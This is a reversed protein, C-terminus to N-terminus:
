DERRRLFMLTGGVLVVAAVTALTAALNVGTHSLHSPVTRNAGSASQHKQSSGEATPTETGPKDTAPKDTAPKDTAPKDTTPAPKDASRATLWQESSLAHDVIRTEGINGYFGTNLKGDYISGGILWAGANVPNLGHAGNTARLAPAGDVYMTVADIKPDDVVAIHHWQGVPIECSWNSHGLSVDEADAFAWQVEKLSSIAGALPPEEIDSDEGFNKIDSRKGERTVFAMWHNAESYNKDIKIFTEFTYGDKLAAKNLPADKSTAFHAFQGKGEPSFALSSNEASDTPADQSLTVLDAPGALAMDNGNGSLDKLALKGDQKAPRWHALTGDVKPYDTSSTPAPKAITEAPTFNANLWSRLKSTSSAVSGEPTFEAGFAEFRKKFDIPVTYTAGVSKDIAHDFPTVQKQPKQVVWPSFSTLSLQNHTFDFEFMSMKGNGGQYAGQFDVLQEFVDLGADNKLVRNTSGHHHGNITLFIQPHNRIIKDWLKDGFDTALPNGASDVNIIQHSTIVTPLKPNADLIKGAWAIEADDAHWPLNVSGMKVGAVTFEHFNSLGSPSAEQFTASKAQRSVPFNRQYSSFLDSPKGQWQPVCDHCDHNGPIIAYPVGADELKKQSKSALDWQGDVTVQDVVDGLHQTIALHYDKQHDIIWQMQSDYPNPLDPFNKTYMDNQGEGYRSYFQTDPVVAISGRAGESKDLDIGGTASAPPEPTTDASAPLSFGVAGLSIAAIGALTKHLLKM